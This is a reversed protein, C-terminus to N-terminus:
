HLCAAAAAAAAEKSTPPYSPPNPILALPLQRPWQM